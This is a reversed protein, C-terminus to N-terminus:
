RYAGAIIAYAIYSRSASSATVATHAALSLACRSKRYPGFHRRSSFSRRGHAASFRSITYIEVFCFAYRHFHRWDPGSEDGESNWENHAGKMSASSLLHLRFAQMSTLLYRYGSAIAVRPMVLTSCLKARRITIARYGLVHFLPSLHFLLARYPPM